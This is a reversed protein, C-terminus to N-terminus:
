NNAIVTVRRSEESNLFNEVYNIFCKQSYICALITSLVNRDDTGHKKQKNTILFVYEPFFRTDNHTM